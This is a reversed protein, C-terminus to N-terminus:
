ISARPSAGYAIMRAYESMGFSAPDRTASVVDAVYSYLKDDVHVGDEVAKRLALIEKKGLIKSISPISSASMRRMIEIEESKSPYDVKVKLLFRDLSAEPLPYTGEEELPNM